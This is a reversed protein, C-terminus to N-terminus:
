RSIVIRFLTRHGGHTPVEGQHLPSAADAQGSSDAEANLDALLEDARDGASTDGQQLLGLENLTDFLAQQSSANRVKEAKPGFMRQKFAMIEATLRVVTAEHDARMKEMLALLATNKRKLEDNEAQLETFLVEVAARWLEAKSQFHYNIQPPHVGARAAIARTSAGDFGHAAAFEGSGAMLNNHESAVLVDGINKFFRPAFHTQQWRSITRNTNAPRFLDNDFQRRWSRRDNGIFRRWNANGREIGIREQLHRGFFRGEKIWNM